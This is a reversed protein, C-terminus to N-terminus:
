LGLLQGLKQFSYKMYSRGYKFFWSRWYSSFVSKTPVTEPRSHQRATKYEAMFPPQPIRIPSKEGEDAKRSQQYHEVVSAHGAPIEEDFIKTYTIPFWETKLPYTQITEGWAFDLSRQDWIRPNKRCHRLWNNLLQEAGETQNFFLTGSRFRWGRGKHISFDAKTGYLMAPASMLIADSDIWLVPKKSEQWAKYVVEPKQACNAEWNGLDDVGVIRHDLGLEEVSCALHKSLAEYDTDRTYFSVVLPKEGGSWDARNVIRHNTKVGVWIPQSSADQGLQGLEKFSAKIPDLKPDFSQNICVITGDKLDDYAKHLAYADEVNHCYIVKTSASSSDLNKWLHLDSLHIEPGLCWHLKSLLTEQSINEEKTV